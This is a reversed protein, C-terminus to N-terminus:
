RDDGGIGLVSGGVHGDILIDVGVEVLVDFGAAADGANGDFASAAHDRVNIADVLGIKNEHWGDIEGRTHGVADVKGLIRHLVARAM